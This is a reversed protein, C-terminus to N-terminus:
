YNKKIKIEEVVPWRRLLFGLLLLLVAVVAVHAVALFYEVVPFNLHLM